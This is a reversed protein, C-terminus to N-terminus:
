ICFNTYHFFRPKIRNLEYIPDKDPAVLTSRRAIAIFPAGCEGFSCCQQFRVMLGFFCELHLCIRLFFFCHFIRGGVVLVYRRSLKYENGDRKGSGIVTFHKRILTKKKQDQSPTPINKTTMGKADVPKGM